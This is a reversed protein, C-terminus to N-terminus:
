GEQQAFKDIINFTSKSLSVSAAADEIGVASKAKAVAALQREFDKKMDKIVAKRVDEVTIKKEVKPM